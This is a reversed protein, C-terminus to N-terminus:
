SPSQFRQFPTRVANLVITGAVGLAAIATAFLVGNSGEALQAGLVVAAITVLVVVTANALLIKRYLSVRLFARRVEVLRGRVGRDAPHGLPPYRQTSADASEAARAARWWAMDIATTQVISDDRAGNARAGLMNGGRPQTQRTSVPTSDPSVRRRTATRRPM